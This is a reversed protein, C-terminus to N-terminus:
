WVVDHDREVNTWLSVVLDDADAFEAPRGGHSERPGGNKIKRCLLQARCASKFGYPVGGGPSQNSRSQLLVNGNKSQDALVPLGIGPQVLVYGVKGHHVPESSTRHYGGSLEAVDVLAGRDNFM